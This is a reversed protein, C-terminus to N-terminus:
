LYLLLYHFQEQQLHIQNYLSQFEMLYKQQTKNLNRWVPSTACPSWCDIHLATNTMDRYGADWPALKNNYSMFWEKWLPNEVFYRNLAQFYEKANINNISRQFLSPFRENAFEGSSPNLGVTVVKIDSNKYANYDGFWLIPINGVVEQPMVKKASNFVSRARKFLYDSVESETKNNWFNFDFRIVPVASANSSLSMKKKAATKKPPNTLEPIFDTVAEIWGDKSMTDWPSHGALWTKDRNKAWPHTKIGKKSKHYIVIYPKEHKEVLLFPKEKKQEEESKKDWEEFYKKATDYKADLKEFSELASFDQNFIIKYIDMNKEKKFIQYLFGRENYCLVAFLLICISFIRVTM